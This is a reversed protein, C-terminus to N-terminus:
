CVERAVRESLRKISECYVLVAGSAKDNMRLACPLGASTSLIFLRLKLRLWLLSRIIIAM